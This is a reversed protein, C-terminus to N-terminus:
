REAKYTQSNIGSQLGNESISFKLYKLDEMKSSPLNYYFKTTDKSKLYTDNKHIPTYSVNATEKLQKYPNLYGVRVKLKELPIDVDYPNYIKLIMEKESLKILETEAICQLKRYSEFNDMFVGRFQTGKQNKYKFDGKNMYKSVYAVRKGQV